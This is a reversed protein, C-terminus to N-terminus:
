DIVNKVHHMYWAQLSFLSWKFIPNWHDKSKTNNILEDLHLYDNFPSSTNLVDIFVESLDTKLLNDMDITFGRKNLLHGTLNPYLKQYLRRLPIKRNKFRNNCLDGANSSIVLKM